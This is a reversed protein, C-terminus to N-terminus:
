KLVDIISKILTKESLYNSFKRIKIYLNMLQFKDININSFVEINEKQVCFLVYGTKKENLEPKNALMKLADAIEKPFNKDANEGFREFKNYTM